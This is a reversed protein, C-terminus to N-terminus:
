VCVRPPTCYGSDTTVTLLIPLHCASVYTPSDPTHNVLQQEERVWRGRGVKMEETSLKWLNITWGNDGKVGVGIDDERETGLEGDFKVKRGDCARVLTEEDADDGGDVWEVLAETVRAPNPKGPCRVQLIAGDWRTLSDCTGGVVGISAM